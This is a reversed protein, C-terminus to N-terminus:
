QEVAGEMNKEAFDNLESEVRDDYVVKVQAGTRKNFMDWFHQRVKTYINANSTTFETNSNAETPSVGSAKDVALSNIGLITNLESIKNKYEDKTATLNQALNENQVRVLFEDIDYELGLKIAPAGMFMKNILVNMTEDDLDCNFITNFKAQMILSYRSANIEAIERAFLNITEYDSQHSVPKNKLAIFNGTSCNDLLNIESYDRTPKLVSYPVKFDIDNGDLISFRDFRAPDNNTQYNQVLGLFSYHGYKTQGIVPIRENRLAIEMKLFDVSILNKHLDDNPYEYSYLTPLIERYRRRFLNYHKEKHVIVHEELKENFSIELTNRSM